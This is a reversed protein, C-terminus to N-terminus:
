RTAGFNMSGSTPQDQGLRAEFWARHRHEDALNRELVARVATPLDTRRVAREYATNTDDENTKMAFFIARDNILGAIAVKGKTLVQKIDGETAAQEGLQQVLSALERMHREHDEM